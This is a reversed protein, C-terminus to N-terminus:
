HASADDPHKAASKGAAPASGGSQASGVNQKRAGQKAKRAALQAKRRRFSADLADGAPPNQKLWAQWRQHNQETDLPNKHSCATLVAALAAATCQLHAARVAPVAGSRTTM